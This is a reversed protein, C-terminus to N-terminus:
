DSKIYSYLFEKKGHCCLVAVGNVWKYHWQTYRRTSFWIFKFLYWINESCNQVSKCKSTKLIYSLNIHYIKMILINICRNRRKEKLVVQLWLLLATGNIAVWMFSLANTIIFFLNFHLTPFTKFIYIYAISQEKEFSTTKYSCRHTCVFKM